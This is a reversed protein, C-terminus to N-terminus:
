EGKEEEDQRRLDTSRRGLKREIEPLLHGLEPPANKLFIEYYRLAEDNENLTELVLALNYAAEYLTSDAEYARLFYERAEDFSRSVLAINGLGNLSKSHEPDIEIAKAWEKQAERYDGKYRYAVGLNYHAEALEPKTRLAQRLQRVAEDIKGKRIFVTALNTRAEAFEPDLRLAEVYHSVAEDFKGQADLASGLNFHALEFAPEIQLAKRYYPIAEESKGLELFINGLNNYVLYNDVTVDLAREYLTTGTKWYRVQVWSTAMMIALLAASIAALGIRGHRWRAALDPVGWAIMLFIGILPVYTYRDAMGQMGVQVLGSVPVLTGLYWLWGVAFYPRQRFVKIALFTIAILLSAAMAVQWMPLTGPHPYLVALQFPWIMKGLYGVYAVLANAIRVDLPYGAFSGLAGGSEQAVLTVISSATAVVFLPIKERVVRPVYSARPADSDDRSPPGIQFRALPWYDLLLLVFPLTVLMPKAMLGLGFFLLVPVYRGPGPHEVYRVYSWMTLMWFFTSLVDKREAVWAVSEVHLPHLAFLAAVVASRWLAATMRRFVLFLLLTNALHFLVNTLHHWGPNMGFLQCDLMHSLWTLPHWNSGHTTTFAWVISDITLGGQVHRNQTVYLEDDYYGIEHGTVQMYVALTAMVLFLCTLLSGHQNSLKKLHFVQAQKV